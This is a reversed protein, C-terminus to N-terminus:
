LRSDLIHGRKDDVSEEVDGALRPHKPIVTHPHAWVDPHIRARGGGALDARKHIARRVLTSPV